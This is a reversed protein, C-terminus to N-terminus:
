SLYSPDDLTLKNFNVAYKIHNSRIFLWYERLRRVFSDGVVFSWHMASFSTDTKLWQWFALALTHWQWVAVHKVASQCVLHFLWFGQYGKLATKELILEKYYYYKEETGWISSPSDTKLKCMKDLYFQKQLSRGIETTFVRSYQLTALLLLLVVNRIWINLISPLRHDILLFCSWKVDSKGIANKVSPTTYYAGCNTFKKDLM